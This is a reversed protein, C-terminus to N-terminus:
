SKEKLLKGLDQDLIQLSNENTGDYFGRIRGEGDVLSIRPSHIFQSDPGGITPIGFGQTALEVVSQNPGLLFYWCVPDAGAKQAYVAL